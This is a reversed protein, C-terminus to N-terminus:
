VHHDHNECATIRKDLDNLWMLAVAVCRALMRVEIGALPATSLDKAEQMARTTLAQLQKRTLVM